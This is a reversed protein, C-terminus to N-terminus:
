GIKNIASRAAVIGFAALIEYIYTPVEVGNATLGGIVFLAAATLYSKKGDFFDVLKSIM